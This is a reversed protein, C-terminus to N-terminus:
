IYNQNLIRKKDYKATHYKTDIHKLLKGEQLRVDYPFTDENKRETEDLEDIENFVEMMRNVDNHESDIYANLDDREKEAKESKGKYEEKEKESKEVSIKLQENEEDTKRKEEKMIEYKEDTQKKEEKIVAHQEEYKKKTEEIDALAKLRETDTAKHEESKKNLAEKTSELESKYKDRESEAERLKKTTEELEKLLKQESQIVEEVKKMGEEVRKMLAEKETPKGTIIQVEPEKVKKM